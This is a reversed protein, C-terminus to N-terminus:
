KPERSRREVYERIEKMFRENSFREANQRCNEAIFRDQQQEFKEVADCISEVTQEEFFVGTPKEKDLGVVTELAGGKGFAIVPTGCAQAEVPTIGFDEEAAFVFAKAKQMHEKLVEFTQYGMLTVNKGAKAKIKAFDPGDGIVILKKDPM